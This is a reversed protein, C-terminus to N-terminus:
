YKTMAGGGKIMLRIRKPVSDAYRSLFGVKMKLRTIITSCRWAHINKNSAHHNKKHKLYAMQLKMWAFVNQIIQIDQMRAPWPLWRFKDSKILHKNKLHAGHHDHVCWYNGPILKDLDQQVETMMRVYTESQFEETYRYFKVYDGVPWIVALYKIRYEDPNVVLYSYKEDIASNKPRTVWRKHDAKANFSVEDIWVVNNWFSKLFNKFARAWTLRQEKRSPVLKGNRRAIRRNLPFGYIGSALSRAVTRYSVGVQSAITTFSM